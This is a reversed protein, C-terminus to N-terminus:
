IIVEVLHHMPQLVQFQKIRLIGVRIRRCLPHSAVQVLRELRHRMFIRHQRQRIGIILPLYTIEVVTHLFPQFTLIKLNTRLHLVVPQAYRQRIHTTFQHLRDRSTITHLTIVHGVIHARDTRYRQLQPLSTTIRMFKLNTSLYQHRPGRKLLQILFPSFPFFRQKGIRSIRSTACQLRLVRLHHRM